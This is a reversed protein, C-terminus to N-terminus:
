LYVRLKRTSLLFHRGGFYPVAKELGEDRGANKTAEPFRRRHLAVFYRHVGEATAEADELAVDGSLRVLTRGAEVVYAPLRVALVSHVVVRVLVDLRTLAERRVDRGNGDTGPFSELFSPPRSQRLSRRFNLLHRRSGTVRRGSGSRSTIQSASFKEGFLSTTKSPIM